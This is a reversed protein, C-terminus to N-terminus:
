KLIIRESIDLDGLHDKEKCTKYGSIKHSNRVYRNAVHGFWRM